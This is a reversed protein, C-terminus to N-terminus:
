DIYVFENASLLVRAYSTWAALESQEASVGTRSLADKCDRVYRAGIKQESPLASRCWALEHALEIRRRADASSAILRRAFGEAQQAVFANNLFFLAQLPVTSQRREETSTNTDAGDFLALFPHRQFRQTMLYVSRHSSPYIEKFPQHQTWAWEHIPPFPHPPPTGLELNGGAALLADRISEADLRQRDFRWYWRNSPDKAANHEDHVSALQYTKSSLILRHMSKISWGSEIFRATMWDLLEPHTPAEGRVGFNSPTTVLGKGFHHQWIRNVIVRATLPNDTRTLWHALQLRGSAGPPIKLHHDDSAANHPEPVRGEGGDGRGPPSHPTFATGKGPPSHPAFASRRGLSLPGFASGRGKPSLTPTLPSAGWVQGRHGMHRLFEPVDRTATPGHQGEDGRLHVYADVPAGEQVAYAGPLDAPLGPKLLNRRRKNLRQLEKQDKNKTAREIEQDLRDIERKHAELRPAGENPPLLPVFHQRNMQKSQLEEAGAWPFQTSAFIGYLAYYDKQTVPDFKHDHCRACRLTLGLFARGTTEITDELTLPWLEYPGTAYRRSLALFGTAIVREAYRERPGDRALLDGALQEQVFDDYRKDGNFSAIVYDRYLRAEPVPYDANDGATDAYRAVDLWHRGWREGYRPSALLCEVVRGWPEASPDCRFANMQEPSPPLGILDFYVRRFLAAPEAPRVPRLGLERWKASIFRDIPNDAWGSPDAPPEVKRVPEFAWHRQSQFLNRTTSTPWPAGQKIWYNFEAVVPEPLRKDPPMHIDAHAYGIAQILLSEEPHGPVIAPGSDGGHLLADRSDTRLGQSAKRDGHCKFCVGALVPRIKLEFFTEADGLHKFSAPEDAVVNAPDAGAFLFIALFFFPLRCIPEIGRRLNRM